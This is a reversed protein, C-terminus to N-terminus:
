IMSKARRAAALGKEPKAASARLVHVPEVRFASIASPLAWQDASRRAKDRVTRM